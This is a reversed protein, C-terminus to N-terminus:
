LFQATDLNKWLTIMKNDSRRRLMASTRGCMVALKDQVKFSGTHLGVTTQVLYLALLKEPIGPYLKKLLSMTVDPDLGDTVVGGQYEAGTTCGVFTNDIHPAPIVWETDSSSDNEAYGRIGYM